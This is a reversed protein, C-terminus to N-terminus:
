QRRTSEYSAFREKAGAAFDAVVAGIAIGSGSILIGTQGSARCDADVGRRLLDREIALTAYKKGASPAFSVFIWPGRASRM